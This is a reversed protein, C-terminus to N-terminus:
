PGGWTEGGGEAATATLCPLGQQSIPPPPARSLLPASSGQQTVQAERGLHPNRPPKRPPKKQRRRQM